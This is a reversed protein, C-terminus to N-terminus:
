FSLGSGTLVPVCFVLRLVGDSRKPYKSLERVLRVLYSPTFATLMTVSNGSKIAPLLVEDSFGPADPYVDQTVISRFQLM